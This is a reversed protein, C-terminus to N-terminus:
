EDQSRICEGESGREYRLTLILKRGEGVLNGSDPSPRPALFSGYLLHLLMLIEPSFSLFVPGARM